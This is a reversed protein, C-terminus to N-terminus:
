DDTLLSKSERSVLEDIGNIVTEKAANVRSTARHSVDRSM